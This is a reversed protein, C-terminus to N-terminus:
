RGSGHDPNWVPHYTELISRLEGMSRCRAMNKMVKVMDPKDIM